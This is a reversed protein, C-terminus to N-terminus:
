NITVVAYGKSQYGAISIFGNGVQDIEPLITAPDVGLVNVAYMCVEFTVGSKKMQRITEAFRTLAKRQSDNFDARDTSILKVAPGHFVVAVKPPNALRNVSQDEYVNNVAWFVINITEASGSSVDFVAKVGSVGDLAAYEGSIAPSASLAILFASAIVPILYRSVPKRNTKM